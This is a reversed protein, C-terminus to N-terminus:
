SKNAIVATMLQIEGQKNQTKLGINKTLSVM